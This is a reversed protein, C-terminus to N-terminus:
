RNLLRAMLGRSRLCENEKKESMYLGYLEEHRADLERYRDRWADLEQCQRHIVDEMERVEAMTPRRRKKEEEMVIM